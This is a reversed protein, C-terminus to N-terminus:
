GGKGVRSWAQVRPFVKKVFNAYHPSDWRGSLEEADELARRLWDGDTVPDAARFAPAGSQRSGTLDGAGRLKLDEAALLFGDELQAFAELRRRASDQLPGHLAVCYSSLHSRGIRGRLQHLQALGFWEAGEILLFTARPVDVGVEIVTTALLLQVEGTVFAEVAETREGRSLRGHISRSSWKSLKQRLREGEKELSPGRSGAGIAPYVVYAQEGKELTEELSRVAERRRRTELIRTAVPLRGPPKEDLVSLDLDGFQALTLTRPIPTATMLLLDPGAWEEGQQLAAADGPPSRRGKSHLLRRQEVGFRHQEDIIVLALRSFQFREELLAHTGVWLGAGGQGSTESLESVNSSTALYVAIDNPLLRDFLRFHQEALLETPAMYVAQLGKSLALNLAQIAVATKGSGVDGQLLRAMPSDALLDKSIEAFVREQAATPSFSFLDKQWPVSDGSEGYSHAKVLRRRQKRGIDSAAAIELLEGYALRHHASTDRAQLAELSDEGRPDHLRPIAEQWSILGHRRRLESPLPDPPREALFLKLAHQQLRAVMAPGLEGLPGYVPVTAAHARCSGDQDEERDIEEEVQPNLLELRSGSRRVEGILRYLKNSSVQRLLYPRNFWRVALSGESDEIRGRILVRRRGRLHIRQLEKLHGVVVWFGEEQVEIPRAVRSHDQFRIPLHHLLHQVSTCGLAAM